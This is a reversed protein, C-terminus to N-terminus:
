DTKKKIYNLFSYSILYMILCFIFYFKCFLNNELYFFAPLVTLIYAINIIISTAYNAKSKNNFYKSNLIKFLIMHLHNNDPFLPNLKFARKRIFSFLVEFFLYFLLICFFFPSIKENLNSTQIIYFSMLFGITYAGSDGLFLKASPFNLLLIIIILNLLIFIENYLDNDSNIVFLVIMIIATHILLLGNFGDIFNSGNIITLFCFLLFIFKILIFENLLNNVMYFGTNKINIESFYIFILIMSILLIVKLKPNENIKIDDFFGILFFPLVSILHFYNKEFFIYNFLLLIILNVIFFLGGIRPIPSIHFAQPKNFNKDIINIKNLVTKSIGLFYKNLFFLIIALFIIPIYNIM